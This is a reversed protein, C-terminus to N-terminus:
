ERHHEAHHCKKCVVELDKAECFLREVFGPLDAFCRLVGCAVRHHVNTEKQMFWERCRACQYEFKQRPNPGAYKRRVANRAQYNAPWSVFKRRLGSRIFGWFKAETWTGGCRTKSPRPM